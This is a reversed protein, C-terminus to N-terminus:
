ILDKIVEFYKEDENEFIEEGEVMYAQLLYNKANDLSDTEFLCEGIRVLIFPNGIGDPCKLAEQFMNLAHSYNELYFLADGIATYVWTSAEYYYKPEPILNLAQTYKEIADEYQELDTLDDGCECLEQIKNYIKDDMSM